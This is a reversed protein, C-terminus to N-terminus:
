AFTDFEVKIFPPLALWTYAQAYAILSAPRKQVSRHQLTKEPFRL